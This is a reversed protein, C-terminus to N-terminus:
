SRIGKLFARLEDESKGVLRPILAEIGLMVRGQEVSLLGEYTLRPLLWRLEDADTKFLRMLDPIRVGGIGYEAITDIIEGTSYERISM